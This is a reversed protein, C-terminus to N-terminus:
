RTKLWNRAGFNVELTNLISEILGADSRICWTPFDILLHSLPRFRPNFKELEVVFDEERNKVNSLDKLHLSDRVRHDRYNRVDLNMAFGVIDYFSLRTRKMDSKLDWSKDRSIEREVCYNEFKIGSIKKEM